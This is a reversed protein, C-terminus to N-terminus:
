LLGRGNGYVNTKILKNEATLTINLSHVPRGLFRPEIEPLCLFNRDKTFWGSRSQAGGDELEIRLLPEQWSYFQQPTISAM